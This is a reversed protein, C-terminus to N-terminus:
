FSPLLAGKPDNFPAKIWSNRKRPSPAERPCHTKVYIFFCSKKRKQKERANCHTKVYIFLAHNKVNKNKERM